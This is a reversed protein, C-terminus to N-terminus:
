KHVYCVRLNNAPIWLPTAHGCVGTNGEFQTDLPGACPGAADFHHWWLHLCNKDPTLASCSVIYSMVCNNCQWNTLLNPFWTTLLDYYVFFHTFIYPLRKFKRHSFNSNPIVRTDRISTQESYAYLLSIKRYISLCVSRILCVSRSRKLSNILCM